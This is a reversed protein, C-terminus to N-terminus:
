QLRALVVALWSLLKKPWPRQPFVSSWVCKVFNNERQKTRGGSRKELGNATIPTHATCASLLGYVSAPGRTWCRSGALVFLGPVDLELRDKARAVQGAAPAPHSVLGRSSHRALGAPHCDMPVNACPDIQISRGANTLARNAELRTHQKKM